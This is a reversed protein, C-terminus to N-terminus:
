IEKDGFHQVRFVMVAHATYPDPDRVPIFDRMVVSASNRGNVAIDKGNLLDHIRDGIQKVNRIGRQGGAANARDWIHISVFEDSGSYGTADNNLVQSEGIGVYPFQVNAPVAGTSDHVRGECVQGVVLIDRLAVQLAWSGLSM